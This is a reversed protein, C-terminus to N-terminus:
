RGHQGRHDACHSYGHEGPGFMRGCQSCGVNAFRPAGDPEEGHPLGLLDAARHLDEVTYRASKGSSAIEFLEGSTPRTGYKKIKPYHEAMEAFPRLANALERMREAAETLAANPVGDASDLDRALVHLAAILTDTTSRM